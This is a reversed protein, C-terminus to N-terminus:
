WGGAPATSAPAGGGAGQSVGMRENLTDLERQVGDRYNRFRREDRAVLTEEAEEVSARLQADDTSGLSRLVQDFTAPDDEGTRSLCYGWMEVGPRFQVAAHVIRGDASYQGFQIPWFPAEDVRTSTVAANQGFVRPLASPMRTWVEPAIAERGVLRVDYPPTEATAPRPVALFHCEKPGASAVIYPIRTLAPPAVTWGDPAQFAIKSAYDAYPQATASTASALTLCLILYLGRM